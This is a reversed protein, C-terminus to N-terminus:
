EKEYTIIRMYKMLDFTIIKPCNNKVFINKITIANPLLNRIYLHKYGECIERLFRFTIRLEDSNSHSNVKIFEFISKFECFETIVVIFDSTEIVDYLKVINPHDYKKLKNVENWNINFVCRALFILIFKIVSNLSIM